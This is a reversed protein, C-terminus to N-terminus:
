EEWQLMNELWAVGDERLKPVPHSAFYINFEERFIPHKLPTQLLKRLTDQSLSGVSDIYIAFPINGPHSSSKEVSNLYFTVLLETLFIINDENLEVEFERSKEDTM